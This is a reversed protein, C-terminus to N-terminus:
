GVSALDREKLQMGPLRLDAAHDAAEFCFAGETAFLKRLLQNTLAHGAKHGRYSGLIPAGALSMDGLADLMKHRVCEDARRFGGPSLIENGDVVIANDLTGGLALGQAHLADVDAKRCFTRCDALERLFTGNSLDSRLAQHGIVEDQFEISYDIEFGEHPSFEAFADGRAVSVPKLIRLMQVPASQPVVGAELFAQAFRLSSGDFIPVEPGDLEILANHIGCGAIAAMLHEITSVYVGVENEIRTNLVTDSVNHWLAAIRNDRDSIDTRCFVIGHGVRSPRVRLRAARGSHLGTGILNVDRLLTQQVYQGNQNNVTKKRAFQGLGQNVTCHLM